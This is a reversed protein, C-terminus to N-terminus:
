SPADGPSASARAAESQEGLLTFLPAPPLRPQARRRSWTLAARPAAPWQDPQIWAADRARVASSEGRSRCGGYCTETKRRERRKKTVTQSPGRESRLLTRSPAAFDRRPICRAKTRSIVETAQIYRLFM